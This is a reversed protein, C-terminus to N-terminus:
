NLLNIKRKKIAEAVPQLGFYLQCNNIIEQRQNQQHFYKEHQVGISSNLLAISTGCFSASKEFATAVLTSSVICAFEVTVAFLWATDERSERLVSSMKRLLICPPGFFYACVLIM